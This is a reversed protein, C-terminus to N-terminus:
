THEGQGAVATATPATVGLTGGFIEHHNEAFDDNLRGFLRVLEYRDEATWGELLRALRQNRQDRFQQFARVGAESASLLTGRRDEPDPTREVLGRDVLSRVQRSVTSLDLLTEAALDTARRPGYNVLRALLLRDGGGNEERARLKWAHTLRSFRSLEDGLLLAAEAATATSQTAAPEAAATTPEM